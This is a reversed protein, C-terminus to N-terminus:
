FAFRWGLGWGEVPAAMIEPVPVSSLHLARSAVQGAVVGAAIGIVVDLVDTRGEDQNADLWGPTEIGLVTWRGSVLKASAIGVAAGAITDSLWHKDDYIRSLATGTAAAYLVITLGSRDFDDALTTVLAFATSTHGSPFSRDEFTFPEFRLHDGNVHPRERGFVVKGGLTLAANLAETVVLRKGTRETQRDDTVLGYLLVGAIAPTFVEIEGLQRFAAAVHSASTSQHSQAFERVPKDLLFISFAAVGAVAAIEIAEIPRAGGTPVPPAQASLTAAGVV